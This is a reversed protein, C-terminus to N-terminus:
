AAQNEDSQTESRKPTEPKPWFRYLRQRASDRIVDVHFHQRLNTEIHALRQGLSHGSKHPWPVGLACAVSPLEAQLEASTVQRGVNAPIELWKELALWIPESQGLMEARGRELRELIRTAREPHGETRAIAQAFGAFDAMRIAGAHTRFSSATPSNSLLSNFGRLLETWLTNRHKAVEALLQAEGKHAPLKEAQVILTRDLVDDRGDLFKPTRSTLGVFCDPKFGVEDNTTYLKRKTFSIGTSVQALRDPLWSVHEDVNDFVVVPKACVAAFFGDPKDRELATVEGVSGFLLRIWKRLALTKGSGKEGCVLLLPKTPLLSSFFHSRLWVSYLWRQDEVSLGDIEAFNASDFILRNLHGTNDKSRPKNRDVEYPQWDPDDWFFFAM